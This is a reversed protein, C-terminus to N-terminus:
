KSGATWFEAPPADKLIVPKSKENTISVKPHEVMLTLKSGNQFWLLLYNRMRVSYKGLGFM